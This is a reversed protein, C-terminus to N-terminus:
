REQKWSFINNLLLNSVSCTSSIKREEVVAILFCLRLVPIFILLTSILLKQETKSNSGEFAKDRSNCGVLARTCSQSCSITRKTSPPVRSGPVPPNNPLDPHYRAWCVHRMLLVVPRRLECPLVSGKEERWGESGDSWTKIARSTIFSSHFVWGLVTRFAAVYMMWLKQNNLTLSWIGPPLIHLAINTPYFFFFFFGGGTEDASSWFIPQSFEGFAATM